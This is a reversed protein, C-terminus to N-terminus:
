NPNPYSLLQDQNMPPMVNYRSQLQQKSLYINKLESNEYGYPQSTDHTSKYLYPTNPVPQNDGYIAPCGCCQDCAKLQNYKIISDANSQLYKRYDNNTKIGEKIRIEKNIAGGPLWSAFNRGDSMIPPYNFHINNSGAYCTAWSM